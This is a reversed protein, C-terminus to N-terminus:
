PFVGGTIKDKVHVINGVPDYTTKTYQITKGTADIQKEYVASSGPVRGLSTAQAAVGGNPLPKLSLGDKANTPLKQTFRKVNQLQAPTLEAIGKAAGKKVVGAIGGGGLMGLLASPDGPQGKLPDGLARGLTRDLDRVSDKFAADSFVRSFYAVTRRYAQALPRPNEHKGGGGITSARLHEVPFGAYCFTVVERVTM